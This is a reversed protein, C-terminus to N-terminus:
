PHKILDLWPELARNGSADSMVRYIVQSQPDNAYASGDPAIVIDNIFAPSAVTPLRALLAGAIGHRRLNEEARDDVVSCARAKESM